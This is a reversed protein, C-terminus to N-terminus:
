RLERLRATWGAKKKRVTCVDLGHTTVTTELFISNSVTVFIKNFEQHAVVKAKGADVLSNVKSSLPILNKLCSRDKM